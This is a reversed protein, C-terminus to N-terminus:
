ESATCTGAAHCAEVAAVQEPDPAAFHHGGCPGLGLVLGTATKQVFALAEGPAPQGACWPGLCNLTVTMDLAYDGGFGGKGLAEGTFRAPFSIEEPNPDSLDREPLDLVDFDFTGHLVVYTERAEAVQTYSQRVDAPLCSLALAPGGALTAVIGTVLSIALVPAHTKM